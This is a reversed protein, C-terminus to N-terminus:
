HETNVMFVYAYCNKDIESLLEETKTQV